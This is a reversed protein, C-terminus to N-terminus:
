AADVGRRAIRGAARLWQVDGGELLFDVSEGAMPGDLVVGRHPAVLALPAPPLKTRRFMAFDNYTLDLVLRGDEDRVEARYAACTYHGLVHGATTAASPASPVGPVEMGLAALLRGLLAGQVAGGTESNTLCVLGVQRDPFLLCGSVQGNTTGGHSLVPRGDLYRILWPLGVADAWSGAPAAEAQMLLRTADSVPGSAPKDIGLHFAAYAAMDDISCVLGGASNMSRPMGWPSAVRPGDDGVWHGLAVRRAMLDEAFFAGTMGLPELVLRRAADEYPMGAARQVALGALYFGANNYSWVTGLATLQPLDAMSAVIRELADEGRGFDAFHDGLWGGTHTLVHRLSVRQEVDRDALRLEPMVRRLPEDLALAGQEVLHLAATATVTKTTSGIQFMTDRTVPLPNEISTVGATAVRTGAPTVLAVAAGPVRAQATVAELLPQLDLDDLSSARAAELITM